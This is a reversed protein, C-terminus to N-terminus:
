DTKHAIYHLAILRSVILALYMVGGFMQLMAVIRAAPAIPIVDSLGTASQLSFSLFLLDLWTQYEGVHNPNQFSNPVTLQCISYLFAFGWALLTFVAGAAFLEDKTLYRDEFMYRVLGYAACFYAAAEFLHATIQMPVSRLGILMLISFIFAGTVFFLGIVSYVPTQRIVKAIMLLALVGLAWMLTQYSRSTSTVLYLILMNLQVLLLWASPLLKFGRWFQVLTQM